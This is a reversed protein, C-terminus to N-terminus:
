SRPRMADTLRVRARNRRSRPFASSPPDEGEDAHLRYEANGPNPIGVVDGAFAEYALARDQAFFFASARCSEHEQRNRV